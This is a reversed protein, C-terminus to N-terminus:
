GPCSGDFIQRDVGVGRRRLRDIALVMCGIL